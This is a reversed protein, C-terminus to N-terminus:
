NEKEFVARLSIGDENVDINIGEQNSIVDNEWGKFCYGENAVAILSIPYDTYYEGFWETKDDFRIEITNVEIYGAGMDSVEIKVPAAVGKLKFNAKLFQVAYPRRADLFEQVDAVARLFKGNDEVGLFRRCHTTMPEEMLSLFEGIAEDVNEKSFSDNMIDMFTIVFQKKFNENQCLKYFMISKDMSYALTDMEMIDSSLGGGNVDFLIWRWKGDKFEGDGIERTRWLAYNSSPWDGYRGIYIETAFYDIFSQMDILECAREYHESDSFDTNIMYEMLETYLRYDIAEGEALEGNKIMIINNKEINYYYGLFIDDYKETLWYVGWYEGDLFMIYPEFHMTVINRKRVLEAVLKDQLKGKFDNGGAFLTVADAMYGTNFLDIYFRNEGDYQERAYINISKPVFARTAGGQIRIGCERNLVVEKHSNFIQISAEREWAAGRQHYNANAKYWPLQEKSACEDYIHGTVYIGTDYDFLNDPATVISIVNMGTYGQKCAYGLFYSETKVRSWRGNADVCKARVVVCKDINYSPIAIDGATLEAQTCHINENETADSIVIPKTYKIANENPISGDLTYYIEAGKPAYLELDFTDEYFGSEKSFTLESYTDERIILISLVVFIGALYILAARRSMM